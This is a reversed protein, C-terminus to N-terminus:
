ASCTKKAFIIASRGMELQALKKYFSDLHDTQGSKQWATEFGKIAPGVHKRVSADTYYDTGTLLLLELPFTSSRAVEVLGARNLLRTLSSFCFYNVHDPYSIWPPDSNTIALWAIQGPSFDNPTCVRLLAHPAMLRNVAQLIEFPALVHELVFQINIFSFHGLQDPTVKEFMTEIVDVGFRRLYDAADHNSEIVLSKWGQDIFFRALLSNGGGIDLMTHPATAPLHRNVQRYISLHNRNQSLQSLQKAIFAADVSDYPFQWKERHYRKRYLDELEVASPLPYLHRYGCTLCEIVRHGKACWNQVAIHEM